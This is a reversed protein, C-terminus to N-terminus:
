NPLELARILSALDVPKNMLLDPNLARVESLLLPDTAATTVAVRTHLHTTRIHRLITTGNGDPLMLDLVVWDPADFLCNLGESVTTAICVDFGRRRLIGSLASGSISDDEVLLVRRRQPSVPTQPNSDSEPSLWGSGAPPCDTPFSWPSGAATGPAAKFRFNAM